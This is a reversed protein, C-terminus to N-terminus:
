GWQYFHAWVLVSFFELQVQGKKRMGLQIKADKSMGPRVQADKIIRLYANPDNYSLFEQVM